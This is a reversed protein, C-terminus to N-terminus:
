PAPRTRSGLQSRDVDPAAGPKARQQVCRERHLPHGHTVAEELLSGVDALDHDPDVSVPSRRQLM